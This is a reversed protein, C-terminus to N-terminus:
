RIHRSLIAAPSSKRPLHITMPQLGISDRTPPKLSVQMTAQCWLERFNLIRHKFFCGCDFAIIWFSVQRCFAVV